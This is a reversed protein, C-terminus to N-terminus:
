AQTGAAVGSPQRVSDLFRLLEQIFDTQRLAAADEDTMANLLKMKVRLLDNTTEPDLKRLAYRPSLEALELLHDTVAEGYIRRLLEPARFFLIELAPVAVIVTFPVGSSVIGIVEEADRRRMVAAEPEPSDADIVVAVPIRRIAQLTGAASYLSSPSGTSRIMIEACDERTLVRKLLDEDFQSETLVSAIM